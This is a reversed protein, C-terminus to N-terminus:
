RSQYGVEKQHRIALLITQSDDYYYRAVYGSRGFAIPWDRYENPMNDVPRGVEPHESIIQVAARITSVARRASMSNKVALFRYLRQVDALADASWILCSM